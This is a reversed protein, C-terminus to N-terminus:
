FSVLLISNLNSVLFNKPYCEIPKEGEALIKTEKENKQM